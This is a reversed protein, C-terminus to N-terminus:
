FVTVVKSAAGPVSKHKAGYHETLLVPSLLNIPWGDRNIVKSISENPASGKREIAVQVPLIATM